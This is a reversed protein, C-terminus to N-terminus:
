REQDTETGTPKSVQELNDMDFEPGSEQILYRSMTQHMFEQLLQPFGIVEAIILIHM